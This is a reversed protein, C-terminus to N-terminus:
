PPGILLEEAGHARVITQDAERWAIRSTGDPQFAVIRESPETSVTPDYERVLVTGDSLALQMNGFGPVVARRVRSWQSRDDLHFVVIERQNVPYERQFAVYAHNGVVTTAQPAPLMTGAFEPPPTLHSLEEGSADLVVFEEGSPEYRTVIVRGDDLTAALTVVQDTLFTGNGKLVVDRCQYYLTGAADFDFGREVDENCPPTAVVVEGTADSRHVGSFAVLSYIVSDSRRIRYWDAYCNFGTFYTTAQTPWIRQLADAGCLGEHLTGQFYVGGTFPMTSAVSADPCVEGNDIHGDHDNDIGDCDETAFIPCFSAGTACQCLTQGNVTNCAMTGVAGDDCRCSTPMAADGGTHACAAGALVLGLGIAAPTVRHRLPARRDFIATM